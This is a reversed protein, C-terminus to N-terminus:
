APPALTAAEHIGRPGLTIAALPATQEGVKEQIM